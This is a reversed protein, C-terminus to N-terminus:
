PRPWPSRRERNWTDTDEVMGRCTRADYAVVGPDARPDCAQRACGPGAPCHVDCELAGNPRGYAGLILNEEVSMRGFVQRGEPVLSIGRGVLDQVEGGTIDRDRCTIVGSRATLLGAITKMLTTKGAGNPRHPQSTRHRNRDGHRDARARRLQVDGRQAPQEPKPSSSPM